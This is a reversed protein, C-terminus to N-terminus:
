TEKKWGQRYALDKIQTRKLGFKDALEINTYYPYDKHLKKLKQSSLLLIKSKQM